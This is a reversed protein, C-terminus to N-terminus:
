RYEIVRTRVVPEVGAKSMSLKTWNNNTDYNYEYTVKVENKLSEVIYNHDDYKYECMPEMTADERRKEIKVIRQNDDYQLSCFDYRRTDESVYEVLNGKDDYKMTNKESSLEMVKRKAVYKFYGKVAKVLRDNEYTYLTSEIMNMNTYTKVQQTLVGKKYTFEILAERAKDTSTELKKTMRGNGAYEYLCIREIAWAKSSGDSNMEYLYVKELTDPVIQWANTYIYNGSTTLKIKKSSVQNYTNKKAPYLLAESLVNGKKDYTKAIIQKEMQIIELQNKSNYVFKCIDKEDNAIREIQNKANFYCTCWDKGSETYKITKVNGKLNSLDLNFQSLVNELPFELRNNMSNRSSFTNKVDNATRIQASAFASILLFVFLYGFRKM